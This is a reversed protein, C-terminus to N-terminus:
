GELDQALMEVPHATRAGTGDEIQTRFVVGAAWSGGITVRALTCL